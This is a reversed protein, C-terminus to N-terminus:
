MSEYIVKGDMITLCVSADLIEWDDKLDFLNRDIVAIDAFKGVELTGLEHERSVGYASGYTYGRLVESMTLKESPLWGGEPKGDDHVRTIARFIELFPNLPVVPSDSGIAVVGAADLVSKTPWIWNIREPGLKKPYVSAEFTKEAIHEPQISPIVGLEKFRPIDVPDVIELHEITHRCKNKGYTNIAEEFYDLALRVSADGCAHLKVSFGKQHAELTAKHVANLDALPLGKNGPADSYDDVMLATHTSAVGDLFQKLLTVTVKESTYKEKWALVEDLDGLLNPACHVRVTLEEAKDLDAYAKVSGVNGHFTPMLDNISTIGLPAVMGMFLKIFDTQQEHNFDCAHKEVAAIASECLFGTLEGKEDRGFYGGYPDPIDKAVGAVELAKSNVWASHGEANLLFVPKDPFYKDLSAKTPFTSDHWFVQYWGQGIIWEGDLPNKDIFDRLKICCEEESRADFLLPYVEQMGTFILHVHSDHFGPLVMKDGLDYVKTNSDIYQQEGTEGTALIKNGSIAVFGSKPFDSIADFIANSKLLIDAKKM